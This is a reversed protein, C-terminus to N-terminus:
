PMLQELAESNQRLIERDDTTLAPEFVWEVPEGLAIVQACPDHVSILTLTEPQLSWGEEVSMYALVDTRGAQDPTAAFVPAAPVRRLKAAAVLAALYSLLSRRNM